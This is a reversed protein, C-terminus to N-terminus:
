ECRMEAWRRQSLGPGFAGVRGEGVEGRGM